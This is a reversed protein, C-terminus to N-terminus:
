HLVSAAALDTEENVDAFAHDQEEVEVVTGPGDCRIEVLVAFHVRRQTPVVLKKEILPPVIRQQPLNPELAANLAHNRPPQLALNIVAPPLTHSHTYSYNTCKMSYPPSPPHPQNPLMSLLM